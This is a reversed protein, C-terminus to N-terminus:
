WWLRGLAAGSAAPVAGRVDVTIVHESPKIVVRDMLNGCRNRVGCRSIAIKVVAVKEVAMQGLRFHEEARRHTQIGVTPHDIRCKADHM